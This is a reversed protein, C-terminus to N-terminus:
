LVAKTSVKASDICCKINQEVNIKSDNFHSILQFKFINRQSEFLTASNINFFVKLVIQLEFGFVFLFISFYTYKFLIAYRIDEGVWTIIITNITCSNIQLCYQLELLYLNSTQIFRSSQLIRLNNKIKCLNQVKTNM